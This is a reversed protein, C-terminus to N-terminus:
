PSRGRCRICWHLVKPEKNGFYSCDPYTHYVDTIGTKTPAQYLPQGLTFSETSSGAHEETGPLQGQQQEQMTRAWDIGLQAAIFEKDQTSLMSLVDAPNVYRQEAPVTITAENEKDDNKKQETTQKYRQYLLWATSGVSLGFTLLIACVTHAQVEIVVM